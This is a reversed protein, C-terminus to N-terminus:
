AIIDLHNIKQFSAESVETVRLLDGNDFVAPLVFVDHQSIVRHPSAVASQETIYVPV